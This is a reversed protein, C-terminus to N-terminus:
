PCSRRICAPSTTCAPPGRSLLERMDAVFRGNSVAQSIPGPLEPRIAPQLLPFIFHTFEAVGPGIFIFWALFRRPAGPLLAGARDSRLPGPRHLRLGDPLVARDLQHRVPPEHRARLRDPVGRGHPSGAGSGDAPVAPSDCTPTSRSGCTPRSGSVMAILESGGVIVVPPLGINRYGATMTILAFAM